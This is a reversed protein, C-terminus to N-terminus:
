VPKSPSTREFLPTRPHPHTPPQFESMCCFHAQQKLLVYSNINMHQTFFVCGSNISQNETSASHHSILLFYIYIELSGMLFVFCFFTYQCDGSKNVNTGCLFYSLLSNFFFGGGWKRNSLYSVSTIYLRGYFYKYM